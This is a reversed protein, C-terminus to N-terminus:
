PTVGAASLRELWGTASRRHWAPIASRDKHEGICTDVIITRGDLELVFSQVACRLRNRDIDVHEPELRHREAELAAPLLTSLPLQFDDDDVIVAVEIGGITFHMARDRGSNGAMM